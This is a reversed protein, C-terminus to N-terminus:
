TDAARRGYVTTYQTGPDLIQEIRVGAEGAVRRLDDVEVASGWWAADARPARSVLARARERVSGARPPRHVSPDSSVQFLVWGGPRLVRGMERVYDLTVDPDPIHQFVVHSFCGDVSEASLVSLSRGDGHLWEINGIGENLERARALMESSVDVAHVRRARAALARSM